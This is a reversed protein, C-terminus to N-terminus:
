QVLEERMAITYPMAAQLQPPLTHYYDLQEQLIHQLYKEIQEAQRLCDAQGFAQAIDRILRPDQLHHLPIEGLTKTLVRAAQQSEDRHCLNDALLVIDRWYQEIFKCGTEDIYVGELRHWGMQQMAHRYFPEVAVSDCPESMLRYANGELQLQEPFLYKYQKYAYHTFYIPRGISISESLLNVFNQTGMLNVNEVRIDPREKEVSQIYWLPFTDNDGYTFLVTGREDRECSNLINAAADRAIYRHSRDHDDWNQCAMLAPVAMLLFNFISFQFNFIPPLKKTKDMLWEAGFAIFICFAYFSLIYAYDRERPEYCPHNLYLNLVVGGMLFLTLAVWFAGRRQKMSTMGILGLLLPLLYYVNHGRTPLSKPMPASTGVLMRDIPPIGTVFQGNQPSGFGQRDNYRGSFNWMLYRLYMYTLQYTFYYRTNGLLTTDGGSWSAAYEADHERHRWMRPYLPAKEYQDRLLYSKFEAYTAPHGENIPTDANARIPIILYPSLGIIFFVLIYFSFVLLNSATLKKTRLKYNRTKFIFLLLLAPTTLLTLLHTCVGLGLLLAILLLWRQAETRDLCHYWRMMAWVTASALLMALSYVESEVASFWATDCFLYCLSGVVAPMIGSWGQPTSDNDDSARRKLSVMQQLLRITWFLFMVTCGGAVASLANSWWAVAASNGCALLTFLHAMLQYFPAGPPHGVQLLSSVAIFEGCDWFSTTPEATLLYVITGGVGLLWGVWKDSPTVLQRGVQQIHGRM